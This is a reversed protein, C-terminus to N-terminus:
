KEREAESAAYFTGDVYNSLLTSNNVGASQQCHMDCFHQIYKAPSLIHFRAPGPLRDSYGIFV